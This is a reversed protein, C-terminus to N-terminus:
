QNLYRKAARLYFRAEVREFSPTFFFGYDLKMGEGQKAKGLQGFPESKGTAFLFLSLHKRTVTSIKKNMSTKFNLDPKRLPNYPCHIKNEIFIKFTAGLFQTTCFLIVDIYLPCGYEITGSSSKFKKEFCTLYHGHYFPKFYEVRCM